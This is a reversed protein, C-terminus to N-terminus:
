IILNLYAVDDFQQKCIAALAVMDKASSLYYFYLLTKMYYSRPM